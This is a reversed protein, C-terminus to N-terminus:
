EDPEVLLMDFSQLTGYMSEPTHETVNFAEVAEMSDTIVIFDGQVGKLQGMLLTYKNAGWEIQHAIVDAIYVGQEISM